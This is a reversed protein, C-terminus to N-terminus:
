LSHPLYLVFQFFSFNPLFRCYQLGIEIKHLKFLSLTHICGGGWVCVCVCVVCVCLFVCKLSSLYFVM